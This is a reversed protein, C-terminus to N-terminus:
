RACKPGAPCLLGVIGDGAVEASCLLRGEAVVVVEGGLATESLHALGEVVAHHQDETDPIVVGDVHEPEVGVERQQEAASLKSIREQEQRKKESKKEELQQELEEKKERGAEERIAKDVEERIKKLKTKTDAMISFQAPLAPNETTKTFTLDWRADRITRLEDKKVVAWVFGSELTGENLRFDLQLDDPYTTQVEVLGWVIQYIMQLLDHRPRFTFITHLSTIARRGTSFNFFDSYGDSKLGDVSPKSFQSALLPLHADM